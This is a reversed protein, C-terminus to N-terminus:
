EEEEEALEGVSPRSTDAASARIMFCCRSRARKSSSSPSVKGDDLGASNRGNTHQDYGSKHVTEINSKKKKRKQQKVNKEGKRREHEKENKESESRERV